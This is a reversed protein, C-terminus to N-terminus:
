PDELGDRYVDDVSLECGLSELRLVQGVVAAQHGWSGDPGRRWVDLRPERHSVL